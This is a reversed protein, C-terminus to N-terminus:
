IWQGSHAAFLAPWLKEPEASFIHEPTAPVLYWDGREIEAELQGPAWGAYGAYARMREGNKLQDAIHALARMGVALYIDNLVHNMRPHVRTTRTLIFVGMPQVPGGMYVSDVEQEPIRYDPLVKSLPFASPQNIILGSAGQERAHETVLIVSQRFMPGEIHRAAVLLMGKGLHAPHSADVNALPICLFLGAILAILVTQQKKVSMYEVM